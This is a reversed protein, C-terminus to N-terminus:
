FPPEVHFDYENIIEDSVSCGCRNAGAQKMAIVQELKKIGGAAKVGLSPKTYKRMLEVDQITAGSTGFGTSTKVWGEEMINNCIECLTIKHRETLYCNEFIVKLKAEYQPEECVVDYVAQIDSIVDSWRGSLVHSINVVMDLEKCGSSTIAGRAEEIKAHTTTTGHPFGIVTSPKVSSQSESIMNYCLKAYSPMVCLSAVDYKIGIEIGHVVDDYTATPKLISHDLTKALEQRTYSTKTNSM